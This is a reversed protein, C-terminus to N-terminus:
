KSKRSKIIATIIEVIIMVLIFALAIIWFLSILFARGYNIYSKGVAKCLSKISDNVSVEAHVLLGIFVILAIALYIIIITQM